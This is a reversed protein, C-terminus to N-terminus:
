TDEELASATGVEQDIDQQCNKTVNGATLMLEQMGSRATASVFM